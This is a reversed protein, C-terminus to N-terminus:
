SWTTEELKKRKEKKDEIAGSLDAAARQRAKPSM